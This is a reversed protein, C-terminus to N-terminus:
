TQDGAIYQLALYQGMGFYPKKPFLSIRLSVLHKWMVKSRLKFSSISFFSELLRYSQLFSTPQAKALSTSQPLSWLSFFSFTSFSTAMSYTFWSCTAMLIPWNSYSHDLCFMAIREEPNNAPLYAFYSLHNIDAWSYHTNYIYM